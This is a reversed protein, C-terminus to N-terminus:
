FNLQKRQKIHLRLFYFVVIDNKAYNGNREM